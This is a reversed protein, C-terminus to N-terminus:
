SKAFWSGARGRVSTAMSASVTGAGANLQNDSGIIYDKNFANTVYLAASFNHKTMQVASLINGPYYVIGRQRGGELALWDGHAAVYHMM